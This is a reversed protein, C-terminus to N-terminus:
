QWPLRSYLVIEHGTHCLAKQIMDIVKRGCLLMTPRSEPPPGNTQTLRLAIYLLRRVSLKVRVMQVKHDATAGCQQQSCTCIRHGMLILRRPADGDDERQYMLASEPERFNSYEM